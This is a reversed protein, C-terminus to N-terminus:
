LKKKWLDKICYCFITVCFWCLAFRSAHSSTLINPFTSWSASRAPGFRPIACWYPFCGRQISAQSRNRSSIRRVSSFIIPGNQRALKLAILFGKPQCIRSSRYDNCTGSHWDAWAVMIARIGVVGGQVLEDLIAGQLPKEAKRVTANEWRIAAHSTLLPM